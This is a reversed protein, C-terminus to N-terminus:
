DLLGALLPDRLVRYASMFRGDVLVVDSVLCVGHSCTRTTRGTCSASRNSPTGTRDRGATSPSAGPTGTSVSPSWSIRKAARCSSGSDAAWGSPAAGPRPPIWTHRPLIATCNAACTLAIDHPSAHVEWPIWPNTKRYKSLVGEPGVLVTTNFVVDSHQPDAELFSGSQIHCGYQRCIRAYRDTHEKPLEVALRDRLQGVTEYIPAAHAFEPFVLLRVDFFPEYGVITQEAIDCMRKVRGPIDGRTAPCPFNTQCAAAYYLSSV